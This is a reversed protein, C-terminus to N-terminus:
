ATQGHSMTALAVADRQNLESGRVYARDFGDGLRERLEDVVFRGNRGILPWPRLDARRLLGEEAGALVAAQEFDGTEVALVAYGSLCASIDRVSHVAVSHDMGERLLSRAEDAKGQRAVTTGLQVTAAAIIRDNDFRQGLDRAETLHRLGDDYQGTVSQIAAVTILAIATWLPEDQRRLEALALGAERRAEDIDVAVAATWALALTSVAHLYPDDVSDLLPALRERATLVKEGGSTEGATVTSALLLEVLSEADETGTDRLTREVWAQAESLIEAHLTWLPLMARFLHPLQDPQHQVFWRAATAINLRESQLKQAWENWRQQRLPREATQALSYYHWANRREIEGLDSRAALREAAFERVTELMRTRPGLPSDETYILSHRALSENLDLASDEDIDATEAAAAMTWGDAFIAVVELMSREADDLLGVSWDVTARLTRQRAPLDSPGAGLADLSASLRSLLAEPTLLRTRAAALEIALPLGELRRCIEAVARGNGDNLEFDHRVARARDVFLAVAPSTLFEEPDSLADPLRLPPVPYEREARLGLVTRSTALVALGPCRDLLEDLDGSVDILQEMNDLIVLLRGDGLQDALTNLNPTASGVDAGVALGIGVLFEDPRTASELPVFAIELDSTGHMSEATAMALRSKGIGGPGTLTVLRVDPEAMLAGIAAIADERGVLSTTGAPPLRRATTSRRANAAPARGQAFRESLLVALDERVMRGLERATRSHRYSEGQEAKIRDLLQTLRTEQDPAPTKVYLLRPLGRALELEDEVGSVEMGPGVSGYQEGYVGVFIDSQALYARYVDRPPHPRAGLEFLVPTLRLATIARDVARREEALEGLTSSVFVRVRQDTTPINTEDSRRKSM